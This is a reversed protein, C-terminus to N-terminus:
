VIDWLKTVQEELKTSFENIAKCLAQAALSAERNLKECEQLTVIQQTNLAMIDMRYDTRNANAGLLLCVDAKSPM